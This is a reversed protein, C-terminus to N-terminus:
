KIALSYGDLRSEYVFWWRKSGFYRKMSEQLIYSVISFDRDVSNVYKGM